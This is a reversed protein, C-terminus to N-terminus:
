LKGPAWKLHWDRALLVDMDATMSGGSGASGMLSDFLSVLCAVDAAAYAVQSDSLPRAAWDSRQEEKDLPKGLVLNVLRSLSIQPTRSLDSRVARAISVLDVCMRPVVRGEDTTVSAEGNANCGRDTNTGLGPALSYSSVSPQQFCPLHPYSEQLRDLDSALQFGVVVVRPSSLVESLFASVSAVCEAATPSGAPHLLLLQLLDVIFIRDRTGVQLISVPTKPQNREFPAWECDLAVVQWPLGTAAAAVGQPGRTTGLVERRMQHVQEATVVLQVGGPPLQMQWTDPTSGSACVAAMEPLPGSQMLNSQCAVRRSTSPPSMGAPQQRQHTHARWLPQTVEESGKGEENSEEEVQGADRNGVLDMSTGSATAGAAATAQQQLELLDRASTPSGLGARKAGRLAKNLHDRSKHLITVSSCVVDMVDARLQRGATSSASAGSSSPSSSPPNKALHPQVRGTISLISGVKIQDLLAQAQERGLARELTKGM